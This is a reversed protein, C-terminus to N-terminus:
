TARWGRCWCGGSGAAAHRPHSTRRRSCCPTRRSRRPRSAAGRRPRVGAPAYISTASRSTTSWRSGAAPAGSACCRRCGPRRRPRRTRSWASAASRTSSGSCAPAARRTSRARPPGPDAPRGQAVHCAGATRVSLPGDSPPSSGSLIVGHALDALALLELVDAVVHASRDQDLGLPELGLAVADELQVDAVGRREAELGGLRDDGVHDVVQGLGLAVAVRWPM